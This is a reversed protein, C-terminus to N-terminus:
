VEERFSDVVKEFAKSGKDADDEPVTLVVHYVRDTEEGYLVVHKRLYRGKKDAPQFTVEFAAGQLGTRVPTPGSLEAEPLAGLVKRVAPNVLEPTRPEVWDNTAPVSRIAISAGSGDRLLLSGRARDAKWGSLESFSCADEESTFRPGEHQCAALTALLSVSLLHHARM